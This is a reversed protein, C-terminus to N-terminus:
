KQALMVEVGCARGPSHEDSLAAFNEFKEESTLKEWQEVSLLPHTPRLAYDDFRDFGPLFGMNFNFLRRFRIEELLLLVGGPALLSRVHAVTEHIRRTAHLVHAAVVLDATGPLYGQEEPSKEIDLLGYQIFGYEAFRQRARDTFFRTVDTFMYTTRDSPLLPLLSATTGGTGAGIEIIRFPHGPPLAEVIPRTAAEAIQNCYRFIPAQVYEREMIDLSGDPIFFELPHKRGTLLDALRAGYSEGEFQNALQVQALTPLAVTNAFRNGEAKVLGDETLMTLWRLMVKRYEPLIRGQDLLEDVSVAEGSQLIGLKQCALCVYAASLRDMRPEEAAQAMLPPACMALRAQERAANVSASWTAPSIFSHGAAAPVQDVPPPSDTEDKNPQKTEASARALGNRLREEYLALKAPSLRARRAAIDDEQNM